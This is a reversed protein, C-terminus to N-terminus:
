SFPTCHSESCGRSGRRWNRSVLTSWPPFPSTGTRRNPPRHRPHLETWSNRCFPHRKKSKCTSPALFGHYHAKLHPSHGGRPTLVRRSYNKNPLWLSRWIRAGHKNRGTTGKGGRERGRHGAEPPISLR